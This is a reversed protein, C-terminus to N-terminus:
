KVFRITVPYTYAQGRNAAVAAVISLTVILV